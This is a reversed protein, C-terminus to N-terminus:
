IIKDFSLEKELNKITYKDQKKVLVSGKKINYYTIPDDEIEDLNLIVGNKLSSISGNTYHVFNDLNVKVSEGETDKFIAKENYKEKYTTNESFYYRSVGQTNQTAETGEEPKVEVESASNSELIYGSSYFDIKEEDNIKITNYILIGGLIVGIALMTFIYKKM